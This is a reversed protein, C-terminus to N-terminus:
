NIYPEVSHGNLLYGATGYESDQTEVFMLGNVYIPEYINDVVIGEELEVFVIQNPPPPPTHTCAGFYPVLLFSHVRDDDFELPVIFGPIKIPIGDYKNNMPARNQLAELRMVLESYEPTGHQLNDVDYEDIIENELEEIDYGFPILQDWSVPVYSLTKPAAQAHSLAVVALCM